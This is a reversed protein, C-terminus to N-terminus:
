VSAHMLNPITRLLRDREAEAAPVDKELRALEEGVTKMRAMIASTDGGAKKAESILKGSKNREARLEEMRRLGDRWAQDQARVADVVAADRGRKRLDARVVDPNDRLLRIDLMSAAALRRQPKLAPKRMTQREMSFCLSPLRARPTSRSTPPSEAATRNPM